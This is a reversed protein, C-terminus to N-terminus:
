IKARILGNTIEVSPASLPVPTIQIPAAEAMGALLLGTAALIARIGM